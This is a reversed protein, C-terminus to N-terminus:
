ALLQTELTLEQFFLINFSATGGFFEIFSPIAFLKGEPGLKAFLFYSTCSSNEGCGTKLVTTANIYKKDNTAWGKLVKKNLQVVSKTFPKTLVKLFDPPKTANKTDGMNSVMAGTMTELYGTCTEVPVLIIVSLWNFMDHVTACAFARRFQERDSMQTFSVITNTVSTGINAGMIMPIATKVPVNAAVLGVIISTSTSSSQVLVTVLVGIMVGVIPNNM